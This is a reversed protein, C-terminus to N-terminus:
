EAPEDKAAAKKAATAKKPEVPAYTVPEPEFGPEAPPPDPAKEWGADLYVQVHAEDDSATEYEAGNKPNYLRM